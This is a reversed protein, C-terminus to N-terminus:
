KAIGEIEDSANDATIGIFDVERISGDASLETIEIPLLWHREPDLLTVRADAPCGSLRTILESVTM